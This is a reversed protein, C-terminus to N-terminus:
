ELRIGGCVDGTVSVSMKRSRCDGCSLSEGAQRVTDVGVGFAEALRERKPLIDGPFIQPCVGRFPWKELTKREEGGTVGDVAGQGDVKVLGAERKEQLVPM